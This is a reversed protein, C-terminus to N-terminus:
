EITDRHDHMTGFALGGGEIWGGMRENKIKM